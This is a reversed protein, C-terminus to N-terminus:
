SKGYNENIACACCMGLNSNYCQAYQGFCNEIFYYRNSIIQKSNATILSQM